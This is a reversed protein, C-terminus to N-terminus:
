WNEISTSFDEGLFSSCVLGPLRHDVRQVDETAVAVQHLMDQLRAGDACRLLDAVLRRQLQVATGPGAPCQAPSRIQGLGEM